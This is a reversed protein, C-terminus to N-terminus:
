TDRGENMCFIARLSLKEVLDQEVRFSSGNELYPRGGMKMKSGNGGGLDLYLDSVEFIPSRERGLCAGVVAM